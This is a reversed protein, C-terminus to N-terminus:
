GSTQRLKVIMFFINGHEVDSFGGNCIYRGNSLHCSDGKWMGVIFYQRGLLYGIHHFPHVRGIAQVFLHCYISVYVIDCEQMILRYSVERYLLFSFMGEVQLFEIDKGVSLTHMYTGLQEMMSDFNDFVDMRGWALHSQVHVPDVSCQKEILFHTHFLNIFSIEVYPISIVHVVINHSYIYLSGIGQGIIFCFRYCLVLETIAEM